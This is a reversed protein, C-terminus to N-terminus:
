YERVGEATNEMRAAPLLAVDGATRDMVLTPTQERLDRKWAAALETDILRPM